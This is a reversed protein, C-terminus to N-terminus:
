EDFEIKKVNGLELLYIYMSEKIEQIDEKKVKDACELKVMMRNLELRLQQVENM